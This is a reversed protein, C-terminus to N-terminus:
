KKGSMVDALLAEPDVQMAHFHLGLAIMLTKSTEAIINRCVCSGTINRTQLACCLAMTSRFLSRCSSYAPLHLSAIIGYEPLLGEGRPSGEKEEFNRRIEKCEGAEERVAQKLRGCEEAHWLTSYPTRNFRRLAATLIRTGADSRKSRHRVRPSSQSHPSVVRYTNEESTLICATCRIHACHHAHLSTISGPASLCASAGPM